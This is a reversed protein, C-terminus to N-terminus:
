KIIWCSLIGAEASDDIFLGHDSEICGTPLLQCPCGQVSSSLTLQPVMTVGLVIPVMSHEEVGRGKFGGPSQRDLDRLSREQGKPQILSPM